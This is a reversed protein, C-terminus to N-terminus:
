HYCLTRCTFSGFTQRLVKRSLTFTKTDPVNGYHSAMHKGEGTATQHRRSENLTPEWPPGRGRPVESLRVGRVRTYRGRAAGRLFRRGRLSGGNPPAFPIELDEEPPGVIGHEGSRFPLPGEPSVSAPSEVEHILESDQAETLIPRNSPPGGQCSQQGEQHCGERPGKARASERPDCCNSCCSHAPQEM